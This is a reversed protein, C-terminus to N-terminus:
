INNFNTNIFIDIVDGNSINNGPTSFTGGANTGALPVNFASATQIDITVGNIKMVYSSGTCRINTLSSNRYVRWDGSITQSSGVCFSTTTGSYSGTTASSIVDSLTVECPAVGYGGRLGYYTRLRDSTGGWAFYYNITATGGTPTPTPTATPTATPTGTPTNTPTATPTATPTGTPTPTPGPFSITSRYEFNYSSSLTTATFTYTNNVATYDIFTNKIGNDGNSEDTTYDYRSLNISFFEGSDIRIVDNINIPITYLGEIISYQKSWLNNNIYIDVNDIWIDISMILSGKATTNTDQQSPYIRPGM